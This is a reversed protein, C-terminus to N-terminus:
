VHIDILIEFYRVNQLRFIGSRSFYMRCILAKNKGKNEGQMSITTHLMKTKPCPMIIGKLFTIKFKRM